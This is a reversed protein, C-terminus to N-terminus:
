GNSLAESIMSSLDKYVFLSVTDRARHVDKSLDDSTWIGRRKLEESVDVANFTLKFIKSWEVGYPIGQDLVEKPCTNGDIESVPIYARKTISGGKWEVLATTGEQRVITIKM